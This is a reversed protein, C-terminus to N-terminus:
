QKVCHADKCILGSSTCDAIDILKGGACFAIANNNCSYTNNECETTACVFPNDLSITNNSTTYDICKQDQACSQSNNWSKNNKCSMVTEYSSCRHMEKKCGNDKKCFALGNNHRVCYNSCNSKVVYKGNQCTLLKKGACALGIDNRSVGADTLMKDTINNAFTDNCQINRCVAGEEADCLQNNTCEPTATIWKKNKCVQRVGNECTYTDDKCACTGSKADCITDDSCTTPVWKSGDCQYLTQGDCYPKDGANCGCFPATKGMNCTNNPCTKSETWGYYNLKQIDNTKAICTLIASNDNSCKDATNPQCCGYNPYYVSCANSSGCDEVDVWKHNECIQFVGEKSCNIFGDTACEYCNGTEQDCGFTCQKTEWNGNNCTQSATQYYSQVCQKAGETCVCSAKGNAEQCTENPNCSQTQWQLTSNYGYGTKKCTQLNGDATCRTTNEQCQSTCAAPSLTSDCTQSNKCQTTTKWNGNDCTLVNNNYCRTTDQICQCQVNSTCKENDPCPQDVWAGYNCMQRVGSESCRYSYNSCRAVCANPTVSSDCIPTTNSCTKGTEWDTGDENCIKYEGRSQYSGSKTCQIEGPTCVAVTTQVCLFTSEDCESGEACITEVWNGDQCELRSSKDKSCAKEGLKCDDIPPVNSICLGDDACVKDVDCEIPDTWKNDDDCVQYHNDDACKRTKAVCDKDTTKPVCQGDVCISNASCAQIEAWKNDNGCIQYHTDDVCKRKDKVCDDGSQKPICQGKDCIPTDNSCQIPDSWVENSCLHFHTGDTCERKDNTCEPPTDNPKCANVVCKENAKCNEEVIKFDPTCKSLTQSNKCLTVTCEDGHELACATGNCGNPCQALTVWGTSSCIQQANNECRLEGANTCDPSFHSAVENDCGLSAITLGLCACFFAFKRNM